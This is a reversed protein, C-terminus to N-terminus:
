SSKPEASLKKLRIMNKPYQAYPQKESIRHSFPIMLDYFANDCYNKRIFSKTNGNRKLLKARQFPHM